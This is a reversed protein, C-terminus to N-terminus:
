ILAAIELEHRGSPTELDLDDGEALGVMARGLPAALSITKVEVGDVTVAHGGVPCVFLQQSRDGELAVLAGLRVTACTADPDLRDFWDLLDRLQVVREAQGRALYAAETARTDYKGEAKSEDSTAEDAAIAQAREMAQLAEHTAERLASIVQPKPPLLNSVVGSRTSRSM